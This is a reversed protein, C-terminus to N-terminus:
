RLEELLVPRAESLSRNIAVAIELAAVGDRIGPVPEAEGRCARIFHADEEWYGEKFLDRWSKVPDVHAEGDRVVLPGSTPSGVLVVGESGYVEVRADYAYGAPCAGDVQALAGSELECNVIVLDIFGPHDEVLDPRKSARGIASVSTVESQSLWRVSDLDHSNVEAILGGSKSLDWAWPPPLGPGRTTSKVLLPKGIDGAAIREAARRFDRDFRRMFGIMFSQSSANVADAVRRAEELSSVLPKETLVHKGAELATIILEAHTFTPAGIVVSDVREDTVATLPDSFTLDCEFEAAVRELVSTNPDAIGILRAGPVGNAFNRAHVSGARGAGVVLVNVSTM